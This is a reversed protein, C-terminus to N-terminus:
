VQLGKLVAKSAAQFAEMVGRGQTAVGELELFGGPNLLKNLEVTPLINALDRKNYQLIVPVGDDPGYEAVLNAQLDKLSALNDELREVQSDAVFVVGDVGKLIIKRTKAYSPQGPVTYLHFRIKAGNLVGASLPLFDFYLTRDVGEALSVIGKKKGDGQTVNQYIQRLNTTKGGFPPGCYVIKCNIEKTKPDIFSM